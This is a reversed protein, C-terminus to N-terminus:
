FYITQIDRKERRRDEGEKEFERRLNEMLPLAYALTKGSGTKDKAILDKGDQIDKFTLYQVPFLESFGRSTLVEKTKESLDM